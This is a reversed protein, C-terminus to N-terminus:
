GAWDAKLRWQEFGGKGQILEMAKLVLADNKESGEPTEEQEAASSNKWGGAPPDSCGCFLALCVFLIGARLM